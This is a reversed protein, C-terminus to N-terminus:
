FHKSLNTLDPRYVFFEDSFFPPPTSCVVVIQSFLCLNHCSNSKQKNGLIGTLSLSSLIKNNHNNKQCM